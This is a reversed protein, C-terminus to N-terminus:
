RNSGRKVPVARRVKPEARVAKRVVPEAKKVKAPKVAATKVAKAKPVVVAPPQEEPLEPGLTAFTVPVNREVLLNVTRVERGMTEIHDLVIALRELQLDIRDLGFSIQAQNRDKVIMCYGKSLDISRIQFSGSDANLRLLDLAARGEFSSLEEGNRLNEMPLGTIVPFHLYSSEPTRTQILIGRADVLFSRGSHLLDDDGPAAIWAVPRREVVRVVVKNPLM